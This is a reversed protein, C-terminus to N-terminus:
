QAGRDAPGRTEISTLTSEAVVRGDAEFSTRITTFVMEGGRRGQKTRVDVISSTATLVDGVRPPPGSFVFEQEGHLIKSMDRDIGYWPSGRDHRWHNIVALFTAPCCADPQEYDAVLRSDAVRAFERVKGLEVALQFPEGTRGVLQEGCGHTACDEVPM